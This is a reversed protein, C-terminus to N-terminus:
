RRIEIIPLRSYREHEQAERLLSLGCCAQGFGDDFINAQYGFMYGGAVAYEKLLVRVLPHDDMGLAEERNPYYRDHPNVALWIFLLIQFLPHM